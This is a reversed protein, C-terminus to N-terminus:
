PVREMQYHTETEGIYRFGFRQYFAYARNNVKLVQLRIPIMSYNAEKIITSLLEGGIGNGQYEPLLFMQNLKIFETERIVVLIGIDVGSKQVVQFEQSSYRKDHLQRQENEDWGWVKEVYEKFAAKKTEYSFNSDQDTGKRLIIDVM